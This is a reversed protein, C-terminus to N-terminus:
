LMPGLEVRFVISGDFGDDLLFTIIMIYYLFTEQNLDLFM